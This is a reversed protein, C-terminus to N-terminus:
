VSGLLFCLALGWRLAPATAVDNEFHGAVLVPVTVALLVLGYASWAPWREWLALVLAVTLLGLWWWAGAGWALVHEVPLPPLTNLLRVPTLERAIVPSLGVTALLLQGIVLGGLVAQDVTPWGPNLMEQALTKSRLVLRVVVWGLSLVALGLGFAQLSRPDWLGQPYYDTVWPQGELWATVGYLVAVSLAAQFAAFLKAWRQMLAVVLWCAALWTVSLTYRLMAGREPLALFGVSVISTLIASQALPEAFIAVLADASVPPESTSDEPRQRSRSAQISFVALGCLTAHSLLAMPLLSRSLVGAETEWALVHILGALALGSGVWTLPVARYAWALLFASAALAAVTCAHLFAPELNWSAATRWGLGYALLALAGVFGAFNGLPGALFARLPLFGAPEADAFGQPEEDPRDGFARLGALLMSEVALVLAWVPLRGGFDDALWWLSAGLLLTLGIYSVPPRRWHFNLVLCGCGYLTYIIVARLPSELGHLTVMVLSFAAAVASGLAYYAAHQRLGVQITGLAALGAVVVFGALATGSRVEFLLRFLELSNLNAELDGLIAHVVLLYALALCPLAAAHAYPVDRRFALATLAAFNVLCVLVLAGPDPWAFGVASLMVFMGTLAVGTGTAQMGPSLGAARQVRVGGLLLPVGALGILLSLRQLGAFLDNGRYAVFGLSVALAFSTIGLFALLTRAQFDDFNESRASQRLARGVSVAHCLAPLASLLVFVGLGAREAPGVLPAVLLQCASTGLVGLVFPWRWDAFLVRGAASMLAVFLAAYVGGVGLELLNFLAGSTERHLGAMILFNLPVLLTGIILLGRSTSELKWHHFTYLGAGYLAATITGFIIFPFYPIQEIKSWLSIVLAISCGVILLGGLLEGWLINKEEMFASLMETFPRRPPPPPPPEPAPSPPTWEAVVRAPAAPPPELLGVAAPSAALLVPAEVTRRASPMAVPAPEVPVVELVPLAELVEAPQRLSELLAEAARRNEASLTGASLSRQVFWEAQNPQNDQMALRAARLATPGFEPAQPYRQLFRRLTRLAEPLWGEEELLRAMQLQAPASLASLQVADAHQYWLLAQAHEDASLSGGERWRLMLAQLQQWPKLDPTTAVTATPQEVRVPEVAPERVEPRAEPAPAHGLLLRKRAYALAQVKELLGADATGAREFRELQRQLAALDTLEATAPSHRLLGCNLCHESWGPSFRECAPCEFPTERERPRDGGLLARFIVAVFVWIGHGLLAIFGLVILFILLGACLEVAPM